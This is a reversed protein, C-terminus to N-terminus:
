ILWKTATQYLTRSNVRNENKNKETFAEVIQWDIDAKGLRTSMQIGKKTMSPTFVDAKWVTLTLTIFDLHVLSWREQRTAWLATMWLTWWLHRLSAPQVVTSERAWQGMWVVLSMAAVELQWYNKSPYQNIWGNHAQFSQCINLKSLHDSLQLSLQELNWTGYVYIIQCITIM